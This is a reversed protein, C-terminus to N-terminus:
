EAYGKVWPDTNRIGPQDPTPYIWYGNIRLREFDEDAHINHLTFPTAEGIAARESHYAWDSSEPITESIRCNRIVARCFSAGLYLPFAPIKLAGALRELEVPDAVRVGVEYRPASIVQQQMRLNEGKSVEKCGNVNWCVRAPNGGLWRCCVHFDQSKEWSLLEESVPWPLGNKLQASLKKPDGSGAQSRPSAFGLAAGLLGALHSPAPGLCSYSGISDYVNRWLAMEGSLEFLLVSM